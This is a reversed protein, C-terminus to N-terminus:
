RFPMSPGGCCIWADPVAEPDYGQDVVEIETKKEEEKMLGGGTLTTRQRMGGLLNANQM